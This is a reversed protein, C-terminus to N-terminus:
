KYNKYIQVVASHAENIKKTVVSFVEAYEKDEPFEPLIIEHLARLLAELKVKTAGSAVRDKEAQLEEAERKAKAEAEAQRKKEADLKAQLEEAERKMKENEQRIRENEKEKEETEKKAREEEALREALKNEQITLFISFEEDTMEKLNVAVEDLQFKALQEMRAQLRELKKNEIQTEIFKEQKELYEEIPIITNTIIKAIADITQGKRLSEEKLEKRKKETDIRLQRLGLRGERAMKMEAKQEESTVVISYAKSEWESAQKFFNEFHSLLKQGESKEIQSQEVIVLLENM